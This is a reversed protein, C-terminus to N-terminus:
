TNLGTKKKVRRQTMKKMLISRSLPTATKIAIQTQATGMMMKMKMKMAERTKKIKKEMRWTKLNVLIRKRKRRMKSRTKERILKEKMQGLYKTREEKPLIEVKINDIEIEKGSNSSQSSLIKTKGPHLAFLLVDDAFCLNTLCDHDSDGFCFHGNRKRQWRPFDDKLAVQLVNNFLLSSLPDGQKTM